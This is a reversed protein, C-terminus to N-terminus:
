KIAYKNALGQRMKALEELSEKREEETLEDTPATFTKRPPPYETRLKIQDKRLANELFAKYNKMTRGKSQCWLELDTAKAQIGNPAIRYKDSLEQLEQSPIKHLFSVSSNKTDPREKKERRKEEERKKEERIKETTVNGNSKRKLRHERVRNIAESYQRKTWNLVTVGENGTKIMDMNELKTVIGDCNEAHSLAILQQESLYRIVGDKTQSALCLLTVWCSRENANLQLIKTDTLYEGGYFKFWPNTM